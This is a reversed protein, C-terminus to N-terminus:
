SDSGGDGGRITRPSLGHRRLKRELTAISVGLSDAIDQLRGGRRLADELLLKETQDLAHQLTINESASVALRMRETPGRLEEPLMETGIVEGPTLVYMREVINSLERVNGPWNYRKFTSLVDMSFTKESHYSTNLKRLMDDALPIVDEMRERLPPIYVPIVNLRYYLDGRFSGDAVAKKLDENTAAMIRARLPIQKTGGVRYYWRDQLLTLLKSQLRMPMTGIEDLFVIGSGAQELIGAKGRRSAGTFAGPEYGFLESELLNEPIAACSIKVYPETGGSFHHVLRSFVDKGVGSEGTILVTSNVSCIRGALEILNRMAKSRGVVGVNSLDQEAASLRCRLLELLDEKQALAERYKLEVLELTSRIVNLGTLDRFNTICGMYAGTERDYVPTATVLIENGGPSYRLVQSLPQKSEGVRITMESVPYGLKVLDYVNKGEIQEPSFGTLRFYAKNSFIICGTEDTYSIGDQSTSLITHIIGNGILAYFEDRTMTM